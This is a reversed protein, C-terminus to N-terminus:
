SEESRPQEYLGDILTSYRALVARRRLKFTPTLHGSDVSSAQQDLLHAVHSPESIEM